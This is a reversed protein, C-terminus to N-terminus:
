RLPSSTTSARVRTGVLRALVRPSTTVTMDSSPADLHVDARRAALGVIMLLLGAVGVGIAIAAVPSENWSLGALTAGWDPWPVLLGGDTDLRVWASVVEVVLLVGAAALVIGLLPALVRLLVRMRQGGIASPRPGDGRRRAPRHRDRGHRARPPGRPPVPEGAVAARVADVVSRVGSPYRLTLELRVDVPAPDGTGVTVRASSGSEGVDIGALRRENRLTGPVGDAAYEVIKRLVTPQIELSGREAPDAQTTRM